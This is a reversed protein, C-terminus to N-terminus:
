AHRMELRATLAVLSGAAIPGGSVVVGLAYSGAAPLAVWGGESRSQSNAAPTTVVPVAAVAAGATLTMVNAAGSPTVLHLGTVFSAAPATGNVLLDAVVRVQTTRGAVALDAAVPHWLPVRAGTAGAAGGSLLADFAGILYTGAATTAVLPSIAQLLVRPGLVDAALNDGNINGNIKDRIAEDNEMVHNINNPQGPIDDWPLSLSSM